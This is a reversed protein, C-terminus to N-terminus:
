IISYINLSLFAMYIALAIFLLTTLMKILAAKKVLLSHFKQATTGYYAALFILVLPLIFILNYLILYFTAQGRLSEMSLIYVITPLYVQGTCLFEFLSITFGIIFAAATVYEIHMMQRTIRHTIKKISEPLQLTMEETKGKKAKRYDLFSYVAFLIAIIATVPYILKTIEGAAQEAFQVFSLIGLGMLLYALFVGISYSAGVFLINKGKKGTITLYSLFFVIGALACPNISDILAAFIVGLPSFSEFRDMISQQADGQDLMECRCKAGTDLYSVVAQEVKEKQGGAGIFYKDGVYTAPVFGRQSDPVGYSIDMAEKLEQMGPDVINNKEIKVTPYKEELNDLFTLMQHCHECTPSYFIVVCVCESYNAYDSTCEDPSVASCPDDWEAEGSSPFAAGCFLLLALVVSLIKNASAM